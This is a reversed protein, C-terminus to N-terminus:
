GAERIKKKKLFEEDKKRAEKKKNDMEQIMDELMQEIEGYVEAVGSASSM